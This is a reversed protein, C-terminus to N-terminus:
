KKNQILLEIIANQTARDMDGFLDLIVASRETDSNINGKSENLRKCRIRFNEPRNDKSISDPVIHDLNPFHLVHDTIQNKGIGWDYYYEQTGDTWKVSQELNNEIFWETESNTWKYLKQYYGKIKLKFLVHPDDYHDVAFNYLSLTYYTGEEQGSFLERSQIANNIESNTM